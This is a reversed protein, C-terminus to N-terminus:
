YFSAEAEAVTTFRPFITSTKTIDFLVQVRDCVGAIAFKISNRQSHAWQSLIAGLGASDMYPVGNLDLIVGSSNSERLTSQFDFVTSLTLPGEIHFIAAGNSGEEREIRIQEM